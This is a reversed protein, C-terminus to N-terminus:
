CVFLKFLAVVSFFCVCMSQQLIMKTVKYGAYTHSVSWSLGIGFWHKLSIETCKIAFWVCMIKNVVMEREWSWRMCRLLWFSNRYSDVVLLRFFFNHIFRSVFQEAWTKPENHITICESFFAISFFLFFFWLCFTSFMFMLWTISYCLNLLLCVCMSCAIQSFFRILVCFFTRGNFVNGECNVGKCM